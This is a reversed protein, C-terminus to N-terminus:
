MDQLQALGQLLAQAVESYIKEGTIRGLRLLVLAIQAEGTLCRWSVTARWNEDYRGLFSEAREICSWSRIWARRPPEFTASLASCSALAPSDKSSMVSRTCCLHKVTRSHTVTSGDARDNNRCRGIATASPPTKGPRSTSNSAQWRLDGHPASTIHRSLVPQSCRFINEGRVTRIRFQCLGAAPRRPQQPMVHIALPRIHPSGGSCCKVPISCPPVASRASCAAACPARRFSSKPMELQGHSNRTSTTGSSEERCRLASIDPHHLWDDRRLFRGLRPDPQLLRFRRRRGRRLRAFGDIRPMSISRWSFRGPSAEGCRRAAREFPLAHTPLWLSSEKIAVSRSESFYFAFEM